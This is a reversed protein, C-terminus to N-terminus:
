KFVQIKEDRATATARNAPLSTTGGAHTSKEESNARPAPLVRFHSISRQKIILGDRRRISVKQTTDSSEVQQGYVCTWLSSDSM